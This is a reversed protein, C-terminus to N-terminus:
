MTSDRLARRTLHSIRNKGLRFSLDRNPSRYCPIQPDRIPTSTDIADIADIPPYAVARPLSEAIFSGVEEPFQVSRSVATEGSSRERVNSAFESKFSGRRTRQRM